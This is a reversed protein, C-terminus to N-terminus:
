LAGLDEALAVLSIGQPSRRDSGVFDEELIVYAEDVYRDWWAWTLRQLEGWTAVQLEKKGTDLVNMCHGGWSGPESGAASSVDWVQQDQATVPLAAGFYVGGFLFHATRVQDHDQPDIAVFAYIRNGGIGERRAMNLVDLMFAGEDVGHNVRDYAAVIEEDTPRWPKGGYVSWAQFSHGLAACTCDGLTDNRMMGLHPFAARTRKSLTHTQPIKPLKRKQVYRALRLTRPDFKPALKGLRRGPVVVADTVEM